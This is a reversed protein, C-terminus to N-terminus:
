SQRGRLRWARQEWFFARSLSGDGRAAAFTPRQRTLRRHQSTAVLHGFSQQEKPEEESRIRVVEKVEPRVPGPCDKRPRKENHTASCAAGGTGFAVLREADAMIQPDTARREAAKKEAARRREDEMKRRNFGM